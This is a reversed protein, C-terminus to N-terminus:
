LVDITVVGRQVGGDDQTPRESGPPPAPVEIWIRAREEREMRERRERELKEIMWTPPV